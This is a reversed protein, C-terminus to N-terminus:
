AAASWAILLQGAFYLPLGWAKNWFSQHAFRQRAVALDSVFFCLAGGALLAARREGFWAPAGGLYPAAAATLTLAILGTYIAVPVRLHGLNPWLWRLVLAAALGPPIAWPGLWTSPPSVLAAARVVLAHDIAFLALGIVFARRKRGLLAADGLAGLILAAAIWRGYPWSGAGALFGAAVFCAAAALKPIRRAPEGVEGRAIRREVGVLALTALACGATAVLAATM